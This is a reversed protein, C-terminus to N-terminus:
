FVLNFYYRRNLITEGVLEVGVARVKGATAEEPVAQEHASFPQLMQFPNSPVLDEHISEETIVIRESVEAYFM